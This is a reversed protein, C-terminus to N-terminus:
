MIAATASSSDATITELPAGWYDGLEYQYTTFSNVFDQCAAVFDPAQVLTLAVEQVTPDAPQVLNRISHFHGDYRVNALLDDYETLKPM